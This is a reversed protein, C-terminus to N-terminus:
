SQFFGGNEEKITMIKLFLHQLGESRSICEQRGCGSYNQLPSSFSGETKRQTAVPSKDANSTTDNEEYNIAKRTVKCLIFTVVWRAFLSSFFAPFMEGTARSKYKLFLRLIELGPNLQRSGPSSPNRSNGGEQM